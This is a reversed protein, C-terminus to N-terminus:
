FFFWGTTMDRSSLRGYACASLTAELVFPIAELVEWAPLMPRMYADGSTSECDKSNPTANGSTTGSKTMKCYMMNLIRDAVQFVPSGSCIGSPTSAICSKNLCHWARLRPFYDIYIPKDPTYQLQCLNSNKEDPSSLGHVALRSNRLLLLYEPTLEGVM